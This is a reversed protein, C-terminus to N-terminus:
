RYRAVRQFVRVVVPAAQGAERIAVPREELSASARRKWPATVPNAVRPNDARRGPHPDGDRPGACRSPDIRSAENDM